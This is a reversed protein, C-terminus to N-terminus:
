RTVSGQLLYLARDRVKSAYSRLDTSTILCSCNRLYLGWMERIVAKDELTSNFLLWNEVLVLYIYMRFLDCGKEKVNISILSNLIEEGAVKNLFNVLMWYAVESRLCKSRADIGSICEVARLCNLDMSLRSALSNAVKKCSTTWEEHTFYSIVSLLCEYLLMSLGELRRDLFLCILVETLEEAESTSFMPWKSRVQFSAAVFKIWARINLSPGAHKSDADVSGTDSSFVFGYVGLARKLEAYTPLWDIKVPSSTEESKGLLVDCWFDCASIRLTEESAFMLLHFTWKALAMELHGSLTILKSLWGNILLGELIESEDEVSSNLKGHHLAQFIACSGLEPLVVTPPSKQAGFVRLGWHSMEDEGGMEKMQKQYEDLTYSLTAERANDEEDSDHKVVRKRKAAGEVRKGKEKYFDSLLDDLGIVKKSKKASAAPPAFVLPDELEFDLRSGFEPEM